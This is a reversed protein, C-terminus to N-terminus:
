LYFLKVLVNFNFLYIYVIKGSEYNEIEEANAEQSYEEGDLIKEIKELKLPLLRIYQSTRQTLCLM